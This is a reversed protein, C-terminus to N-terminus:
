NTIQLMGMANSAMYNGGEELFGRVRERFLRVAARQGITKSQEILGPIEAIPM